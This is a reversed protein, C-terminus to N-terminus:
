HRERERRRRENIREVSCLSAFAVKMKEEESFNGDRKTERKRLNQGFAGALRRIKDDLINISCYLVTRSHGCIYIMM